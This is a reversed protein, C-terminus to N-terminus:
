SGAFYALSAPISTFSNESKISFSTFAAMRENRSDNPLRPPMFLIAGTSFSIFSLPASAAPTIEVNAPLTALTRFSCRCALSAKASPVEITFSNLTCFLVTCASNSLALSRKASMRRSNPSCSRGSIFYITLVPLKVTFPRLAM